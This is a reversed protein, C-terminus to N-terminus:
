DLFNENAQIPNNKVEQTDLEYAGNKQSGTHLFFAGYVSKYCIEIKFKDINQVIALALNSDDTRFFSINEGSILTKQRLQYTSVTTYNNINLAKYIQGWRMYPKGNYTIKVSEILAPGTGANRVFLQIFNKEGVSVNAGLEIRAWTSAKYQEVMLKQQEVMVKFQDKMIFAQMLSTVLACISVILSVAITISQLNTKPFTIKKSFIGM